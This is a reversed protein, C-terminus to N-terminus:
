LGKNNKRSFRRNVKSFKHIFHKKGSNKKYNKKKFTKNKLSKSGGIPIFTKTLNVNYMILNKTKLQKFLSILWLILGCDDTNLLYKKVESFFTSVSMNEDLGYKNFDIYSNYKIENLLKKITWGLIKSNNLLENEYNSSVYGKSNYWSKGTSLIYLLPLEIKLKKIGCIFILNSKDELIISNLKLLNALENIKELFVSGSISCKSILNVHLTNTKVYYTLNGCLQNKIKISEIIIDRSYSNKKSLLINYDTNNFIEFLSSELEM